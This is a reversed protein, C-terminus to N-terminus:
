AIFVASNFAGDGNGRLFSVRGAGYNTNVIDLKRDNNIDALILFHSQTSVRYFATPQFTGDGNGILVSITGSDRNAGVLDLKGYLQKARWCSSWLSCGWSWNVIPAFLVM